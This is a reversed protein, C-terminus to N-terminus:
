LARQPILTIVRNKKASTDLRTLLAQCPLGGFVCQISEGSQLSLLGDPLLDSLKLSQGLAKEPLLRRVWQNISVIRGDPAVQLVGVPLADILEPASSTSQSM